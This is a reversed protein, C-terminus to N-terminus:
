LNSRFIDLLLASDKGVALFIFGKENVLVRRSLLASEEPAYDEFLALKNNLESELASYVEQGYGDDSKILIYERVDMVSDSSYVSFFELRDTDIGYKKRVYLSNREELGETDAASIIQASLYEPDTKSKENQACIFIIFAALCVIGVVESLRLILKTM